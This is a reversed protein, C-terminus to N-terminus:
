PKGHRDIRTWWPLRLLADGCDIEVDGDYDGSGTESAGGADLTLTVTTSEGSGLAIADTSAVVIEPGTVAVSCSQAAGSVNLVSIDLSGTVGKNGSFFGFSASAPAMTLPTEHAADLDLRGGGRALVGPDETGTIHDTVVRAATNVMASKVDDPSWSPHLDLLVAAGGALHPTAMSTGQFMAFEGDFVSSYVNVGPATLDPKILYTFPTPGRSSFGAIIDANDTIFETEVTGDVTATGSPKIANGDEQSLMVAPIEPFPDTGDHAMAVPDGAVNNVMLVGIAGANEANRVKTTFTCVGRDILAIKGSVDTSIATCGDAPETVTYDATVVGFSNFDGVAAGYTTADVTVPIGIFHPNTSAGATLAGAATGPSEVTSDGPGSNGAAVAVVLGADVTAQVAEALLDHPGQVKGGLSMNVVDMGDVITDELAEAIDHSFASGGFAIFGAGYGPFVNYDWLEAAPAMGSIPGTIPGETLEIVCGAATGSVHSGHDFVITDEPPGEKGSFYVKHPIDAAGDGDEDKCEAFFPLTDVIGTDIIGVKIGAGANERGGAEPWVEDADVLGTSVNMTPRYLWSRTVKRVGPGGSLSQLPAGNLQVAFGNLSYFFEEVIRAKPSRGTLFGRYSEHAKALHAVYARVNRGSTNLKKGRGPKTAKLGRIGGTYSAAPPDGLTVIAYDVEEHSGASPEAFDRRPHDGAAFATGALVLVAILAYASARLSKNNM